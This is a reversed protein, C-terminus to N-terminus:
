EDKNNRQKRKKEVPLVNAEILKERVMEARNWDREKATKLARGRSKQLHAPQVALFLEWTMRRDDTKIIGLDLGLRLASLLNLAERSSLEHAYRLVGFARGVWDRVLSPKKEMLRARANKEHEVIEAVIQEIQGVTWEEGVGLTVQNSIQFMNGAAETGEGWLGRVTLGIKACARMIPEIEKQVVLGPLHLMVSARLGTGVNTPCATLYGLTPSFAFAVRESLDNDFRDMLAWAKRLNLGGFISHMRLHDEENIMVALHADASVVLSSGVGRQLFDRSILHREFLLLKGHDDLDRMPFVSAGSCDPCALVAPELTQRIKECEDGGAWEPFAAGIINRALRVRSSVIIAEDEVDPFWAPPHALLEDLTVDYRWATRARPM